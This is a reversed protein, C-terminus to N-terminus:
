KGVTAEMPTVVMVAIEVIKRTCEDVNDADLDKGAAALQVKAYEVADEISSISKPMEFDRGSNIARYSKRLLAVGEPNVITTADFIGKAKEIDEGFEPPFKTEPAALSIAEMILKFSMEPDSDIDGPKGLYSVAKTIKADIQAKDAGELPGGLFLGTIAVALTLARRM